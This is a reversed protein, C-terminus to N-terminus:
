GILKVLDDRSSLAQWLWGLGGFSGDKITANIQYKFKESYIYKMIEIEVNYNAIICRQVEEWFAEVIRKDCENEKWEEESYDQWDLDIFDSKFLPAKMEFYNEAELSTKLDEMTIKEFPKKYWFSIYDRFKMIKM